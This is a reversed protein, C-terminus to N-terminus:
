KKSERVNEELFKKVNINLIQIGKEQAKKVLEIKKKKGIKGMIILEKEKNVKELERLNNVLIPMKGMIQGRFKKERKWGVSPVPPYGKRKERMNNDRGKPSRWVLKKKKRLGTKSYRYWARRVFKPKRKM